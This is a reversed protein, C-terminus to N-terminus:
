PESDRTPAHAPAKRAPAGEGALESLATLFRELHRTRAAVRALVANRVARAEAVRRRLAGVERLSRELAALGEEFGGALAAPDVEVGSLLPRPLGTGAGTLHESLTRGFIRLAEPSRPVQRLGGLAARQGRIGFLGRLTACAAALAPRLEAVARDRRTMRARLERTRADLEASAAILEAREFGLKRGAEALTARLDFPKRPDAVGLNKGVRGTLARVPRKGLATMLCRCVELQNLVMKAQM